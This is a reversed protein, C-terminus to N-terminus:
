ILRRYIALLYKRIPLLRKWIEANRLHKQSQCDIERNSKIIKEAIAIVDKRRCRERGVLNGDGMLIVTEGEIKEVRHIVYRGESIEALAIDGIKLEDAKRLLVSDKGGHIFPLMSVGKPKFVVEQGEEIFTAIAPILEANPVIKTQM